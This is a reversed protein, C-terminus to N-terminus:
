LDPNVSWRGPTPVPSYMVGQKVDFVGGPNGFITLDVALDKAQFGSSVPPFASIIAPFAVLKKGTTLGVEKYYLVSRGIFAKPTVQTSIEDTAMQEKKKM